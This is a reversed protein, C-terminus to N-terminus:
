AMMSYELREHAERIDLGHLLWKLRESDIELVEAEDHPWKFRGKELRKMWLAFGNRDWMLIKVLNRRRNSFVFLDGSFLTGEMEQEVQMSLGNIAKRMDTVGLALYVRRDLLNDGIM